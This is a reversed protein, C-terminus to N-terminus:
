LKIELDILRKGKLYVKLRISDKLKLCELNCDAYSWNRAFHCESTGRKKFITHKTTAHILAIIITLLM